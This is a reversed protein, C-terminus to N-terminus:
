GCRVPRRPHAVSPIADTGSTPNRARASPTRAGGVARHAHRASGPSTEPWIERVMPRGGASTVHRVSPHGRNCRGVPCKPALTSITATPMHLAPMLGCRLNDSSLKTPHLQIPHTIPMRPFLDLRDQARRFPMAPRDDLAVYLAMRPTQETTALRAVIAPTASVVPHADPRRRPVRRAM